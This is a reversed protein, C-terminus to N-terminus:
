FYQQKFYFEADSIKEFSASTLVFKPGHFLLKELNRSLTTGQYIFM